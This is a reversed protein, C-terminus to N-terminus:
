VFCAHVVEDLGKSLEVCNFDSPITAFVEAHRYIDISFLAMDCGRHLYSADSQIQLQMSSAHFKIGCHQHSSVYQLLREMKRTDKVILKAQVSGVEHVATVISPDVSRAFYLLTGVVVQLERQQAPSELPYRRNDSNLGQPIKLKPCHM